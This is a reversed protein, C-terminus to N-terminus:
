HDAPGHMLWAVHRIYHLHHEFLRNGKKHQTFIRGFTFNEFIFYLLIEFIDVYIGRLDSSFINCIHGIDPKGQLTNHSPEYFYSTVPIRKSPTKFFVTASM